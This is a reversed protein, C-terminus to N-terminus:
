NVAVDINGSALDACCNNSIPTSSPIFLVKSLKSRKNSVFHYLFHILYCVATGIETIIFLHFSTCLNYLRYKCTNPRYVKLVKIGLM